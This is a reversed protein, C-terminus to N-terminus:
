KLLTITNSHTINGNATQVTYVGNHLNSIDFSPKATNISGRSVVNGALNRITVTTNGALAADFQLKGSAINIRLGNSSGAKSNVFGKIASTAVGLNIIAGTTDKYVPQCSDGGSVVLNKIEFTYTSDTYELKKSKYGEYMIKLRNVAKFDIAKETSADVWKKGYATPGTTKFSFTHHFWAGKGLIKWGWPADASTAGNKIGVWLDRNLPFNIDAELASCSSLDVFNRLLNEDLIEYYKLGDKGLPMVFNMIAGAYAWDQFGAKTGVDKSVKFDVAFNNDAYAMGISNAKVLDVTTDGVPFVKSTGRKTTDEKVKVFVDSDTFWFGGWKNYGIERGNATDSPNLNDIVFAKAAVVQSATFAMAAAIVKTKISRNM